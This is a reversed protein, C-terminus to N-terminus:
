EGKGLLPQGTVHGLGERQRYENISLFDIADADFDWYVFKDDIFTITDDGYNDYAYGLTGVPIIEDLYEVDRNIVCYVGDEELYVPVREQYSPPNFHDYQTQM